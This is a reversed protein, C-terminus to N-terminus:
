AKAFVPMMALGCQGQGDNFEPGRGLRIYGDEGWGESWSNKVKWFDQGDESGYGVVLVGHDLRTGCNGTFVGSEYLQFDLQDAQIAVSVPVQSAAAQLADEDNPAVDVHTSISVVKSCSHECSGDAATYPYDEETCLGGSREVFGLALEMSGGNCGYNLRSCDVLQQESLSVLEGTAVAHAGEIAGTTSFSWCSGCQGQDKVPTVHGLDTHDVTEAVVLSTPDYSFKPNRGYRLKPVQLSLVRERFQQQTLHSFPGHGLKYPLGKANQERIYADNAIYTELAELFAAGDAFELGFRASHDFFNKEHEERSVEASAGALAGLALFAAALKM